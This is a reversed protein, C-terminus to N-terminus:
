LRAELERVQQDFESDSARLREVAKIAHIVTTHDRHFRRGIEPLSRPTHRQCLYMAVQRPRAVSRFRRASTMEAVPISFHEATLAQISAIRFGDRPAVPDDDVEQPKIQFASPTDDQRTLRNLASLLRACGQICQKKHRAESDEIQKNSPMKRGSIVPQDLYDPSSFYRALANDRPM